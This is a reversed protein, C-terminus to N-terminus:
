LRIHRLRPRVPPRTETPRKEVKHSDIFVQIDETAIRYGKRKGVAVYPLKGAEILAYGNYYSHIVVGSKRRDWHNCRQAFCALLYFLLFWATASPDHTKFFLTHLPVVMLVAVAQFGLYRHGTDRHLFVEIATSYIHTFIMLWNIANKTDEVMNPQQQNM